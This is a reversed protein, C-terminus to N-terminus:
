QYAQGEYIEGAIERRRGDQTRLSTKSSYLLGRPGTVQFSMVLTLM